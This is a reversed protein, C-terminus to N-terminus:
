VRNEVFEIIIVCVMNNIYKLNCEYLQYPKYIISNIRMIEKYKNPQYNLMKPPRGEQRLPAM